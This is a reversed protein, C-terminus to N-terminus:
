NDISAGGPCVDGLGDLENLGYMINMNQVAQGSAGKVLNDIASMVTLPTLRGHTDYHSDVAFGIECLNTNVVRSTKPLENEPLVRVFPENRYFASYDRIIEVPSTNKKLHVYVTSFMGREQPVIHPTFQIHIQEGAISSLEQEVEPIHRHKGGSQYAYTDDTKKSLYERVFNRGGGSIGSKSDVIVPSVEPFIKILGNQLLPAVALIISTPYCGPNAVLSAKRIKERYLEPLGYVAEKLLSAYRHKQKYWKEYVGADKIRYDASLDIVRKKASALKPVIDMSVGHPLALFVVDASKLGTSLIETDPNYKYCPYERGNCTIRTEDCEQKDGLYVIETGRHSSLIKLLEEGAYGSVGIIATKIM